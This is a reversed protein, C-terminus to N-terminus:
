KQSSSADVQQVKEGNVTIVLEIRQPQLQQIPASQSSSISPQPATKTWAANYVALGISVALTICAIAVTGISWRTIISSNDYCKDTIARVEAIIENKFKFLDERTAFTKSREDLAAVHEAIGNFNAIERLSSQCSGDFHDVM